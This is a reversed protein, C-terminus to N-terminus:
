HEEELHATVADLLPQIVLTPDLEADNWCFAITVEEDAVYWIASRFGPIAGGHGFVEHGPIEFRSVGLGYGLGGGRGKGLEASFDTM